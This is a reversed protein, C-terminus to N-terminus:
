LKTNNRCFSPNHLKKILINPSILSEPFKLKQNQLFFQKTPKPINKIQLRGKFNQVPTIKEKDVKKKSIIKGTTMKRPKNEKCKNLESKIHFMRQTEARTKSDFSKRQQPEATHPKQGLRLKTNFVDSPNFKKKRNDVSHSKISSINKDIIQKLNNVSRESFTVMDIQRSPAEIDVQEFYKQEPVPEVDKATEWNSLKTSNLDETTLKELDEEPIEQLSEKQRMFTNQFITKIETDIEHANNEMLSLTSGYNRDIQEQFSNQKMRNKSHALKIQRRREELMKQIQKLKKSTDKTGEMLLKITSAPRIAKRTYNNGPNVKKELLKSPHPHLIAHESGLKPMEIRIMKIESNSSFGCSPLIAKLSPENKIQKNLIPGYVKQFEQFNNTKSKNQFNYTAKKPDQTLKIKKNFHPEKPEIM